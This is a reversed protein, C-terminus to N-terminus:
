YYGYTLTKLSQGRILVDMGIGNPMTLGDRLEYLAKQPSGVQAAFVFKGRYDLSRVDVGTINLM